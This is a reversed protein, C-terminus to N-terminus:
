PKRRHESYVRVHTPDDYVVLVLNAGNAKLWETKKAAWALAKAKPASRTKKM